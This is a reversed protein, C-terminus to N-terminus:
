DRPTKETQFCSSVFYSTGVTQASGERYASCTVDGSGRVKAEGQGRGEGGCGDKLSRTRPRGLSSPMVAGTAPQVTRSASAPAPVERFSSSSARLLCTMGPTQKWYESGTAQSPTWSHCQSKRGRLKREPGWCLCHHTPLTPPAPLQTSESPPLICSVTRPLEADRGCIWWKGAEM